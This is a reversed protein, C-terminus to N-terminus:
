YHCSKCEIGGVSAVTIKNHKNKLKKHLKKFYKTYYFNNMDIETSRHCNICWGMTFDNSMKIEDMIQVQGHCAKCIIDVKKYKQITKRGSVVHQSHNFYVFDQMNHVRIWEISQMKGSFERTKPNWGVIKYIKQIEKDFFAKDKKQPLYNGNYETISLHCNMCVNAAPIGSIKGYKANSHCYQCDIKQIGSHIKHSFFIPQKPQFGENVDINIFFEWLNYIVLIGLVSYFIFRNEKKWFFFSKRKQIIYEEISNDNRIRLLVSFRILLWFLIITIVSFNLLIIKRLEEKKETDTFSIKEIGMKKIPPNKIFDLIDDIEQDSLNPFLNMEIKGYKQYIYIADKDGSDRLDKNNKIWKKLWNRNKRDTIGSLAPGILEKKLDMSHCATCNKKFLNKGNEINKNEANATKQFFICFFLILAMKLYESMSLNM